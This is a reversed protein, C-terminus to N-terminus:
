GKKANEIGHRLSSLGPATGVPVKGDEAWGPASEILHLLTWALGFCYDPGFMQALANAEELSIPRSIALLAEQHRELLDPAANESPLPGLALFSKVCARM